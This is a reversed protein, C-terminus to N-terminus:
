MCFYFFRLNIVTANSISLCCFDIYFFKYTLVCYLPSMLWAESVAIIVTNSATIQLVRSASVWCNRDSWHSNDIKNDYVVTILSETCIATETHTYQSVTTSIHTDRDCDRHNHNDRYKKRMPPVQQGALHQGSTLKTGSQGLRVINSAKVAALEAARKHKASV